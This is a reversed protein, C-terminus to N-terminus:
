HNPVANGTSDAAAKNIYIKHIFANRDEHKKLDQADNDMKISISAIGSYLQHFYFDNGTYSATTYYSGLSDNNVHLQLHPYVGGLPTGKSVVSIKYYGAPLNTTISVPDNSWLAFVHENNLDFSSANRLSREDITRFNTDAAHPGAPKLETVAYTMYRFEKVILGRKRLDAMVATYGDVTSDSAHLLIYNSSEDDTLEYYQAPIINWELGEFLSDKVYGTQLYYKYLTYPTTVYLNTHPYYKNIYDLSPRIERFWLPYQQFSPLTFGYCCFLTFLAAVVIHTYRAIVTAVIYTGYALLVMFAPVLYLILRYVFPYVKLMSIVLHLLIPLCTFLLLTYQRKCIAYVIAVIFLAPAIYRFGYSPTIYLLLYYFIENYRLKIFNVFAASFVNPPCFAFAYNYKQQAESPHHYIFLRYNVAFVVAWSALVLIDAKNVRHAKQWNYLMYAAICFLVIFSANSYLMALCGFVALLWHRHKEVFAHQSLALYVMLLYMCVDVGYPKLESSFYIVALNVAFLFLAVVAAVRSKTLQLTIFYMLPLTLISLIFPLAHFACENYGFILVFTKVTLLYLIPGAQVYDLPKLLGKYSHNLFNLAFHAEDEWLSRGLLFQHVRMYIGIALILLILAGATRKTAKETISLM